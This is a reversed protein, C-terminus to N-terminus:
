RPVYACTFAITYARSFNVYQLIISTTFSVLENRPANKVTEELEEPSSPYTDAFTTVNNPQHDRNNERFDCDSSQLQRLIREHQVQREEIRALSTFVEKFWVAFYNSKCYCNLSVHIMIYICMILLLISFLKSSIQQFENSLQGPNESSVSNAATELTDTILIYIVVLVILPRIFYM